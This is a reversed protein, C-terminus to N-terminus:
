DIVRLLEELSTQGSLVKLMGDQIITLMGDEIATKEITQSTILSGPSELLKRVNETMTFQERIAIQGEYGYPNEDSVGPKYIQLGELNPRETNKPLSDVVENIKKWENETPAAAQKTKDDLRRILRQAMVLRIASVFLPNQGIIDAIRTLSAAASGAHFTALVPCNVRPLMQRALMPIFPEHIHLVDFKEAELM